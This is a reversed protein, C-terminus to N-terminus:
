EYSGKHTGIPNHVAIDRPAGLGEDLPASGLLLDKYAYLVTIQFIYSLFLFVSFTCVSKMAGIHSCEVGIVGSRVIAVTSEDSAECNAYQGWFVATQLSLVLLISAGGMVAGYSTRSIRKRIGYYSAITFFSFVFGTLVGVSGAYKNGFAVFSSILYCFAFVAQAGLTADLVLTHPYNSLINEIALM